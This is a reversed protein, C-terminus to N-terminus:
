PKTLNLYSYLYDIQKRFLIDLIGRNELNQVRAELSDIEKQQKVFNVAM